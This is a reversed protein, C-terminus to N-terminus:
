TKADASAAGRKPWLGFQLDRNPIMAVPLFYSLSRSTGGLGDNTEELPCSRWRLELHKTMKGDSGVSAGDESFEHLFLVHHDRGAPSGLHDDTCGQHSLPAFFIM